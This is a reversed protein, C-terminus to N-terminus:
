HLLVATEGPLPGDLREPVEVHNAWVLTSFATDWRSMANQNDNNNYNVASAPEVLPQAACWGIGGTISHQTQSDDLTPVRVAPGSSSETTGAM